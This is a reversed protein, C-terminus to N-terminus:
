SAGTPDGTALRVDAADTVKARTPAIHLLGIKQLFLGYLGLVVISLCAVGLWLLSDTLRWPTIGAGFAPDGFPSGVAFVLAVLGV